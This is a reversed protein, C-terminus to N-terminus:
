KPIARASTDVADRIKPDSHGAYRALAVRMQEAELSDNPLSLLSVVGRVDAKPDELLRLLEPVIRSGERWIRFRTQALSYFPRSPKSGIALRFDTITNM